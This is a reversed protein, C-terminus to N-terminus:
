PHSVIHGRGACQPDHSATCQPPEALAESSPAPAVRATQASLVCTSCVGSWHAIFHLGGCCSFLGQKITPNPMDHSTRAQALMPASASAVACLLLSPASPSTSSPQESSFGSVPRAPGRAASRALGRAASQQNPRAMHTSSSIPGPMGIHRHPWATIRHYV